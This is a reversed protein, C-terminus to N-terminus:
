MAVQMITMAIISLGISIGLLLLWYLIVISAAKRTSFGYIRQVGIITLVLSWITFLELQNLLISLQPKTAAFDPFLRAM